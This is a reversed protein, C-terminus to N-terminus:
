QWCCGTWNMGSSVSTDGAGASQQAADNRCWACGLAAVAASSHAAACMGRCHAKVVGVVGLPARGLWGHHMGAIGRLLAV